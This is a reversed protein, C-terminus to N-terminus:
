WRFIVMQSFVVFVERMSGLIGDRSDKLWMAPFFLNFLVLFLYIFKLKFEYSYFLKDWLLMLVLFFVKM